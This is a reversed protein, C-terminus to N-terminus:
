VLDEVYGRGPTTPRFQAVNNSVQAGREALGSTNEGAVSIRHLRKGVALKHFSNLPSVHPKGIAALVCAKELINCQFLCFPDAAPKRSQSILLDAVGEPRGIVGRLFDFRQSM